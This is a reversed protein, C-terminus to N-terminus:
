RITRLLTIVTVQVSISSAFLPSESQEVSPQNVSNKSNSRKNKEVEKFINRLVEKQECSFAPHNVALTYIMLLQESGVDDDDEHNLFKCVEEANCLIKYLAYSCSYNNSHLLSLYLIIKKQVDKNSIKRLESMCIEASSNAENEASRLEHFDKRGLEELCTGLFRLELPLCSHQLNCMIGIREYSKLSRFYSVIDAPVVM